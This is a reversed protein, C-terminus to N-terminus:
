LELQTMLHDAMGYELCKRAKIFGWDNKMHEQLDPINCYKKYHREIQKWGENKWDSTRKTELPTSEGTAMYGYHVMHEGDKGIYREGKTGAVALMSGASYAKSPVITRVVVGSRKALEVLEVLHKLVDWDGGPSTIWLDIRGDIYRAQNYIEETVSPVTVTLLSEDFETILFSNDSM